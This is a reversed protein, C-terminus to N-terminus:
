KARWQDCFKPFLSLKECKLEFEFIDNIDYAIM